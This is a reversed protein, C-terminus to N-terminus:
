PLNPSVISAGGGPTLFNGILQVILYAAFVILFGILASTAVKTAKSLDESKGSGASAIIAFGAGILILLLAIGAIALAGSLILAVLDALTKGETSFPSKFYTNIEFALHNM